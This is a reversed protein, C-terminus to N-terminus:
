PLTTCELPKFSCRKSTTRLFSDMARQYHLMAEEIENDVRGIEIMHTYASIPPSVNYKNQFDDFLARAERHMRHRRLLGLLASLMGSDPAVNSLRDQCEQLARKADASSRASTIMQTVMKPTIRKPGIFSEAHRLAQLALELRGTRSCAQLVASWTTEDPVIGGDLIGEGVAFLEGVAVEVLGHYAAAYLADDHKEKDSARWRWRKRYPM